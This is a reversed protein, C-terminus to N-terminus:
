GGLLYDSSSEPPPDGPCLYIGHVNIRYTPQGRYTGTRVKLQWPYWRHSFCGQSEVDPTFDNGALSIGKLTSLGTLNPLLGSLQNNDLSLVVLSKFQNWQPPIPGELQNDSLDLVELNSLNSWTSVLPGDLENNELNLEKLSEMERWQPPLWGEFLNDSLDLVELSKFHAWEPPLSGELFNDSLNLVQLSEMNAWEPPLSGELLHGALYIQRLNILNGWQPPLEGEWQADEGGLGMVELKTLQGLSAPLPGSWAGQYLDLWRLETLNGLEAPISGGFPPAGEPQVSSAGGHLALYKLNTLQGLQPPISGSTIGTLWLTDLNSLNGLEPPLPGEIFSLYLTRLNTLQGMQPPIPRSEFTPWRLVELSSLQGIWDPIQPPLTNARLIRLKQLFRWEDPLREEFHLRKSKDHHLYRSLVVHELQSLQGWEAPLSGGMYGTLELRKLHSLQGIEPPLVGKVKPQNMKCPLQLSVVRGRSNTEVCQWKGIRIKTMWGRWAEDPEFTSKLLADHIAELAARDGEVSGGLELMAPRIEEPEETLALTTFNEAFVWDSPGDKNEARVAWRYETNPELDYITNYLRTGKHPENTWRGGVATKYNVDYDTAGEVADWRVRASSDTIAEVRLNTPESPVEAQSVVKGVSAIPKTPADRDCAVLALALLAFPALRLM